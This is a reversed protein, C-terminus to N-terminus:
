RLACKVVSTTPLRSNSENEDGAGLGQNSPKVIPVVSGGVARRSVPRLASSGPCEGPNSAARYWSAQLVVDMRPSWKSRSCCWRLHARSSWGVSSQLGM